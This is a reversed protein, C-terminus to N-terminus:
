ALGVAGLHIRVVEEVPGEGWIGPGTPLTLGEGQRSVSRLARAMQVMPDADFKSGVYMDLQSAIPEGILRRMAENAAQLDPSFLRRGTEEEHRDSLAQLLTLSCYADDLVGLLGLRDPIMDEAMAWYSAASELVKSMQVELGAIRATELGSRFLEPVHRVYDVVFGIAGDLDSDQASHGHSRAHEKLARRLRGSRGEDAVADEIQTEVVDVNV